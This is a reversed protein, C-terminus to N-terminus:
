KAKTIAMIPADCVLAIAESEALAFSEAIEMNEINSLFDKISELLSSPEVKSFTLPSM